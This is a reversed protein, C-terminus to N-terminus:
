VFWHRMWERASFSHIWLSSPWLLAELTWLRSALSADCCCRLPPGKECKVGRLCNVVVVMLEGLTVMLLPRRGKSVTAREWSGFNFQIISSSRPQRMGNPQSQVFHSLNRLALALRKSTKKEDQDERKQKYWLWNGGFPRSRPSEFVEWM